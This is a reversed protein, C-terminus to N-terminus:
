RQHDALRVVQMALDYAACQSFRADFLPVTRVTQM